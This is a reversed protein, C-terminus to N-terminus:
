FIWMGTVTCSISATFLDTGARSCVCICSAQLCTSAWIMALLSLWLATKVGNCIGAACAFGWLRIPSMWWSVIDWVTLWSAPSWGSHSCLVSERSLHISLLRFSRAHRNFIAFPKCLRADGKTYLAHVICVGDQGRHSKCYRRNVATTTTGKEAEILNPM